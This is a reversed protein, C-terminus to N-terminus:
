CHLIWHNQGLVLKGCLNCFLRELTGNRVFFYESYFRLHIQSYVASKIELSTKAKYTNSWIETWSILSDKLITEWKRKYSENYLSEKQLEKYVSEVVIKSFPILNGGLRIKLPYKDPDPQNNQITKVCRKIEKIKLFVNRNYSKQRKKFILDRVRFIGVRTLERIPKYPNGDSNLIRPNYFILENKQQEENRVEYEFKFQKSAHLLENYFDDNTQIKLFNLDGKLFDFGKYEADFSGLHEEAIVKAFSSQEM